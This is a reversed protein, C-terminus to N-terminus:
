TFGGSGCGGGVTAGGGLGGSGGGTSFTSIGREVRRSGCKPCRLDGAELEALSLLEEFRAGCKRCTFEYLPM